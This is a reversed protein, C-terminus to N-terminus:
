RAVRAPARRPQHREVFAEYQEEVYAAFQARFVSADFRLAHQRIIAPDFIYGDFRRLTDALSQPTPQHFFLGTVGDVVTDLAGGAAYAIVPRGAAQAELPAIGFDEEGPFLFASCGAYLERLREQTVYGEFRVTPGAMAELAARDRGEGAVVLPVGLRSCAQVALDVRKYPILRSAVLLYDGVEAAPRESESSDEPREPESSGEPEIFEILQFAATDVPPYIVAADRHYRERIRDRVARSIAVFRDVREEARLDWRRLPAVVLSLLKTLTPPFQERAMYGELNWLFRPPTLCYNIHLTQPSTRVCHCFGSSNSIVVDYGSFDFSEFALPYLPLFPQHNTRVGPLWQMFSTRIDWSRYQAPLRESAYLSTYVPADPYMDHLVELVREAGGYQNLWDHVLAVRM